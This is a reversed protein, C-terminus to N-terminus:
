KSTTDELALAEFKCHNVVKSELSVNGVFLGRILGDKWLKSKFQSVVTEKTWSFM